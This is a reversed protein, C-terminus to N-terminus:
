PRFVQWCADWLEADNELEWVTIGADGGWADWQDPWSYRRAPDDPNFWETVVMPYAVTIERCVYVDGLSDVVALVDQPEPDRPTWTRRSM